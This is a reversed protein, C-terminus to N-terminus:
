YMTVAQWIYAEAAIPAEVEETYRRGSSDGLPEGASQQTSGCIAVIAPQWFNASHAAQTLHEGKENPVIHSQRRLPSEPDLDLGHAQCTIVALIVGRLLHRDGCDGFAQPLGRFRQPLQNTSDLDIFTGSGASLIHACRFRYPKGTAHQVTCRSM